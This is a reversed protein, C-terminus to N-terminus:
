PTTTVVLQPRLDPAAAERSHFDAGDTGPQSLVFSVTGNGTVLPTVNWEIWVNKGVGVRDDVAAGTAAPKNSWNLTTETWASGAGAVAPGDASGNTAFLRLRASQITGTLGSVDFKLYTEVSPSADTGVLLATGFNATPTASEARTDAVVPFTM